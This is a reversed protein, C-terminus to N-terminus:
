ELRFDYCSRVSRDVHKAAANKEISFITVHETCKPCSHEGIYSKLSAANCRSGVALGHLKAIARVNTLTLLDVMSVLPIVTYVYKVPPYLKLNDQHVHAAYVLTSNCMDFTEPTSKVFASISAWSVGRPSGGGVRGAGVRCKVLPKTCSNLCPGSPFYGFCPKQCGHRFRWSSAAACPSIRKRRWSSHFYNFAVIQLCNIHSYLVNRSRTLNQMRAKFDHKLLFSRQMQVHLLTPCPISLRHFLYCYKLVNYMHEFMNMFAHVVTDHCRCWLAIRNVSVRALTGVTRFIPHLGIRVPPATKL